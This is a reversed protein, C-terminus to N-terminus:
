YRYHKSQGVYCLNYRLRWSQEPSQDDICDNHIRHRKEDLEHFIQRYEEGSKENKWAAKKDDFRMVIQGYKNFNTLCDKTIDVIMDDEDHLYQKLIAPHFEVTAAM